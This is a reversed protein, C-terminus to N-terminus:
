SALPLLQISKETKNITNSKITSTSYHITHDRMTAKGLVKETTLFGFQTNSIIYLFFIFSCKKHTNTILSSMPIFNVISMKGMNGKPQRCKRQSTKNALPFNCWKLYVAHFILNNSYYFFIIFNLLMINRNPLM